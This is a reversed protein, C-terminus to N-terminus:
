PSRGAAARLSGAPKRPAEAARAAAGIAVLEKRAAAQHEPAVFDVATGTLGWRVAGHAAVAALYGPSHTWRHLATGVVYRTLGAAAAQAMIEPGIGIALPRAEGGFLAPWTACLWARAARLECVQRARRSSEKAATASKQPRCDQGPGDGPSM